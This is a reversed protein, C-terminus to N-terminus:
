KDGTAPVVALVQGTEHDYVHMAARVHKTSGSVTFQCWVPNAIATEAEVLRCHDTPQLDLCTVTKHVISRCLTGANECFPTRYMVITAIDITESASANLLHCSNATNDGGIGVVPGLPTTLSGAHTVAVSLWVLGVSLCFARRTIM